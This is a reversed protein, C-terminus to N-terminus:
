SEEDLAAIATLDDADLEFNFVDLNERIRPETASKPIAVIGLQMCWRLVIQAPTREHKSAIDVITRERM